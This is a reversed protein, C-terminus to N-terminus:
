RWHCKPANSVLPTSTRLVGQQKLASSARTTYNGAFRWVFSDWSATGIWPRKAQELCGPQDVFGIGETTTRVV